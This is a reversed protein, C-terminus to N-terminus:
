LSLASITELMLKQKDVPIVGAQECVIGGALNSIAAIHELNCGAIFCLSAVSIVTDGAGSVDAISRLVAPVITTNIENNKQQSMFIGYDSLTIMIIESQLKEHLRLAANKLSTHDRPNIAIQLGESIEKLNPKFLTTNTFSFFNKKKPDVAVPIGAKNAMQIIKEINELNLVGKNYDQLIIIHPKENRLVNEFNQMFAEADAVNLDSKTEDDVRLMQTRNGIIRYKTTTIRKESRIIGDKRIGSNELLAVLEDGQRDNGIVSCIVPTAGLAKLNLAVNAAGGLMNKRSQLDVVPVPAEPSIREVKGSLYTDLMVDGAVLVKCNDFFRFLQQIEEEPLHM